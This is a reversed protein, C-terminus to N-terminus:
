KFRLPNNKLLEQQFLKKRLANVPNLPYLQLLWVKCRPCIFLLM